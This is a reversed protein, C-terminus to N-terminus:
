TLHHKRCVAIYKDSGGIDILETCNNKIKKTFPAPTANNPTVLEGKSALESLCVSCIAKLKIFTDALHVLESIKGFKEMRYDGDLGVCIIHKGLSLWLKVVDVLDDFLNAEDIGIITYKSVDADSLKETSVVDLRDSVGKYLSAHSSVVKTLDRTDLVHNIILAHRKESVDSYRTIERLLRSSKDSFMPGTYVTLSM